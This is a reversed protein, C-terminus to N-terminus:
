RMDAPEVGVILRRLLQIAADLVFWTALFAACELTFSKFKFFFEAIVWAIALAPLQEAALRRLPLLNLLTYM